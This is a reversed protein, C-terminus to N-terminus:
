LLENWNDNKLSIYYNKDIPTTSITNCKPCHIYKINGKLLEKYTADPLEFICECNRNNCMRYKHM